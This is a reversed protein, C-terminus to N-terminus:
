SELVLCKGEKAQLPSKSNRSCLVQLTQEKGEKGNSDDIIRAEKEKM